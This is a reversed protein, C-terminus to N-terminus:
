AHFAGVNSIAILNDGCGHGIDPPADYEALLAVLGSTQPSTLPPM